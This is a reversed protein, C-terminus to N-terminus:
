RPFIDDVPIINRKRISIRLWPVREISGSCTDIVPTRM